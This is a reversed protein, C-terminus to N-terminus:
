VSELVIHRNKMFYEIGSVISIATAMWMMLDGMPISYLEFPINNMLVLIIALMQTMTKAKGLFSAALVVQRESAILRIGDVVMDRSIMIIPIIIPIQLQGALILLVTNVLLKDAIPDAFKGFTTVLEHKRALYGDLFDTAAAVIFIITGILNTVPLPVGGINLRAVEIGFQGYPFLFVLMITPILFVRFLTLRNAINMKKM